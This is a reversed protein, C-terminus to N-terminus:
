RFAAILAVIGIVANVSWGLILITRWSGQIKEELKTVREVLGERGNGNVAHDLKDLTNFITKLQEGIASLQTAIDETTM